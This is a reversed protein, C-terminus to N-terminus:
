CLADGGLVGRRSLEELAAIEAANDQSSAASNYVGCAARYRRRDAIWQLLGLLEDTSKTKAWAMIAGGM